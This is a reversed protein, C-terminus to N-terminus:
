GPFSTTTVGSFLLTDLEGKDRYNLIEIYAVYRLVMSVASFFMTFNTFLGLKLTKDKLIAGSSITKNLKFIKYVNTHLRM